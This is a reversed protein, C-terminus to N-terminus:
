QTQAFGIASATGKSVISWDDAVMDEQPVIDYPLIENTRTNLWISRDDADLYIWAGNWGARCVEGAAKMHVLADFFKM